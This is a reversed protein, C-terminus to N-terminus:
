RGARRQIARATAYGIQGAGIVLATRAAGSM